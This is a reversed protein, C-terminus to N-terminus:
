LQAYGSVVCPEQGGPLNRGKLIEALHYQIMQPGYACCDIVDDDNDRRLPDYMLLQETIEIDGQTLVWESAKLAGAWSIIREAKRGAARLPVFQIDYIGRERCFHPYIHQLSAQYAVAEIGIVRVGWRYAMRILEDFLAVPDIGRWANCETIQYQWPKQLKDPTESFCHVAAATRHAWKKDSIALDVTIFAHSFEDPLRPPEYHIENPKIIGGGSPVPMNMMEAFWVDLMGARQYELFDARLKELPWAEPWLPKGNSLLAGYRYSKWSENTIIEHLISNSSILNGLWIIKNGFKDLAKMFPGYLWRKLKMVLEPTAILKDDELDDIVALQPRRHKVNIGRVQKGAGLAKLICNKEGITFRYNGVGDQKVEWEVAGFVARFNDTEFFAVIDNVAPIAIDTTASVYVIFDVSTFLFFYVCALKALTTKAHDRPIAIALRNIEQQVMDALIKKHFGPVDHSIQEGLFFQIFFEPDNKLAEIIQPKDIAVQAIDSM